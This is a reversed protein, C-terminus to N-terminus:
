AGVEASTPETVVLALREVGEIFSAGDVSGPVVRAVYSPSGPREFLLLGDLDGYQEELASLLGLASANMAQRTPDHRGTVPSDWWAQECECAHAALDYLSPKATQDSVPVPTTPPRKSM